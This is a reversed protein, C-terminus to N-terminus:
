TMALFSSCQLRNTHVYLDWLEDKHDIYLKLSSVAKPKLSTAVAIHYGMQPGGYLTYLWPTKKYSLLWKGGERSLVCDLSLSCRTKEFHYGQKILYWSFWLTPAM